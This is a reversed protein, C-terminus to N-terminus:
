GEVVEGHEPTAAGAATLDTELPTWAAITHFRDAPNGPRDKAPPLWCPAPDENHMPPFSDIM